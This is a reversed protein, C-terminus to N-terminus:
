GDILGDKKLVNNLKNFIKTKWQEIKLKESESYDDYDKVYIEAYDSFNNELDELVSCIVTRVLENSTVIKDNMQLPM